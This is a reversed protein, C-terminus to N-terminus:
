VIIVSVCRGVDFVFWSERCCYVCFVGVDCMLCCVVVLLLCCRAVCYVWSLCWCGSVFLM